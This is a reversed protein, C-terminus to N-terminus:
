STASRSSSFIAAQTDSRGLTVSDSHVADYRQRKIEAGAAEKLGVLQNFV